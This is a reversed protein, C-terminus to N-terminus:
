CSSEAERQDRAASEMCQRATRGAEFDPNLNNAATFMPRSWHNPDNANMWALVTPYFASALCALAGDLFGSTDAEYRISKPIPYDFVADAEDPSLGKEEMRGRLFEKVSASGLRGITELSPLGAAFVNIESKEIKM